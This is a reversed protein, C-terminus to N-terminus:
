QTLGDCKKAEVTWSLEHWPYPYGAPYMEGGGGGGWGKVHVVKAFFVTCDM